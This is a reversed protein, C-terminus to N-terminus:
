ASRANSHEYKRRARMKQVNEEEDEKTKEQHLTVPNNKYEVTIEEKQM